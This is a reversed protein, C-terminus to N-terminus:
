GINCGEQKLKMKIRTINWNKKNAAENLAQEIHSIRDMYDNWIINCIAVDHRVMDILEQPSEAKMYAEIYKM